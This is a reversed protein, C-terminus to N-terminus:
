VVGVRNVYISIAIIINAMVSVVSFGRRLPISGARSARAASVIM